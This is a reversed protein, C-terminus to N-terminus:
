NEDKSKYPSLYVTGIYIDEKEGTEEKKIKIWVSDDNENKVPIVYHSFSNRAFLAIGGSGKHSKLNIPRNKATILKFGPICLKDSIESHIHTEVLSVIADNKIENLFDEDTLKNGITRSNYGNLNWSSIQMSVSVLQKSYGM